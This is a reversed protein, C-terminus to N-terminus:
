FRSASRKLSVICRSVFSNATYTRLTPVPAGLSVGDVSLALPTPTLGRLIRAEFTEMYQNASRSERIARRGITYRVPIMPSNEMSRVIGGASLLAGPVGGVKM